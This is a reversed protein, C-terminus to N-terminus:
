SMTAKFRWQGNTCSFRGHPNEKNKLENINVDAWSAGDGGKERGAAGEGGVSTTVNGRRTVSGKWQAL